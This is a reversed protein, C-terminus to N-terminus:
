TDSLLAELDFWYLFHSDNKYISKNTTIMQYTISKLSNCIHTMKLSFSTM